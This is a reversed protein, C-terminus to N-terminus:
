ELYLVPLKFRLDVVPRKNRGTLRKFEKSNLILALARLSQPQDLDVLIKLSPELTEITVTPPQNLDILVKHLSNEKLTQIITTLKQHDASKLKTNSSKVLPLDPLPRDIPSAVRSRSLAVLTQDNKIQYVLEDPKLKVAVKDPWIKVVEEVLYRGFIDPDKALLTQLDQFLLPRNLLAQNVQKTLDASCATPTNLHCEIRRVRLRWWGLGLTLALCCLTLSLTKASM